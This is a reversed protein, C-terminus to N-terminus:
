RGAPASVRWSPRRSRAARMAGLERAGWQRVLRPLGARAVVIYADVPRLTERFFADVARDGCSPLDGYLADLNDYAGLVRLSARDFKDGQGLWEAVDTAILSVRPDVPTGPAPWINGPGCGNRLLRYVVPSETRAVLYVPRPAYALCERGIMRAHVHGMLGGGQSEPLVGSSDLYLCHANGFIRRHYGTWGCVAGLPDVLLCFRSVKEFFRGKRRDRWYPTMDAGFAKTSIEVLLSYVTDQFRESFRATDHWSVYSWGDKLPRRSLPSAAADRLADLSTVPSSM